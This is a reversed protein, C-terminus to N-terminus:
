IFFREPNIGEFLHGCLKSCPFLPNEFTTNEETRLYQTHDGNAFWGPKDPAVKQRHYSSAQKCTFEPVPWLALAETNTMERLLSELTIDARSELPACIALVAVGVLLRWGTGYNFLFRM